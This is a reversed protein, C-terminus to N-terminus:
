LDAIPRVGAVVYERLQRELAEAAAVNERQVRLQEQRQILSLYNSAVTFVVTQQTRQLDLESADETLQAERLSAINGLGNFLVVSSSVGMNLSQTTQDIVRGESESFNRGYNQAGQTTLQLDPLFQIRQQRVAIGDLATENKARRLESNQKLAIRIAEDFTIRRAEQTALPRAAILGASAVVAAMLLPRSRGSGPPRNPSFYQSLM